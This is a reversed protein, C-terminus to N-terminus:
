NPQDISRLTSVNSSEQDRANDMCAQFHAQMAEVVAIHSNLVDVLADQGGVAKGEFKTQLAQGSRLTGFADITGLEGAKIFQAQLEARLADCANRLTEALHPDVLFAEGQAETM